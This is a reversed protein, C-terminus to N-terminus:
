AGAVGVVLNMLSIIAICLTSQKSLFWSSFCVFFFMSLDSSDRLRTIKAVVNLSFFFKHGAKHSKNEGKNEGLMSHM